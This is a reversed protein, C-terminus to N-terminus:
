KPFLLQVQLRLTVPAFGTPRVANGYIQVSANIPQKGIKFIKGGGGGFPVVWSQSSPMNWDATLIPSSTLYWGKKFNYNVFYQLLFNNTNPVQDRGAFGWANQALAGVVWRGQMTLLVLAPGMGFKGAGLESRTRTPIVFIPGAGWILAGTKAPSLFLSLQTDGLGFTGGSGDFVDPQWIVPLITRTILNVPGISIPIVPQVNLTNQVQRDGVTLNMNNQLPLSILDAVPNQTAKALDEQSPTSSAPKEAEASAPADASAPTDVRWSQVLGCCAVFLCFRGVSARLTVRRARPNGAHRSNGTATRGKVEPEDFSAPAGNRAGTRM